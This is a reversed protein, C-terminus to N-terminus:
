PTVKMWCHDPLGEIPEQDDLLVDLPIHVKARLTCFCIECQELRADQSTTRNGMMEVIWNLPGKCGWCGNVVKNNPCTVCIAARREAEDQIVWEAGAGIWNSLTRAFRRVDSLEMRREPKDEDRQPISPNQRCVADFLDDIWGGGTYLGNAERHKFIRETFARHHNDVFTVGTQPETYKWGGPPTQTYDIPRRM